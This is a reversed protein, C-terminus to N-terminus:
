PTAERKTAPANRSSGPYTTTQASVAGGSPASDRQLASRKCGPWQGRSRTKSRPEASSRTRAIVVWDDHAHGRELFRDMTAAIAPLMPLPVGTAVGEELMLRADKRAM